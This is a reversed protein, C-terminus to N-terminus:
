IFVNIDTVSLEDSVSLIKITSGLIFGKLFAVRSKKGQGESGWSSLSAVNIKM